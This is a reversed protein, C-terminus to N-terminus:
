LQTPDWLFQLFAHSFSLSVPLFSCSTSPTLTETLAVVIRLIGRTFLSACSSVTPSCGTHTYGPQGCLRSHGWQQLFQIDSFTVPLGIRRLEWGPPNRLGNKTCIANASKRVIRAVNMNEPLSGKNTFLPGSKAWLRVLAFCNLFWYSNQLCAFPCHMDARPSDM